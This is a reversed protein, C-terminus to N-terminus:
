AARRRWRGPAVGHRRKFAAALSYESAFGTAAAVAAVTDGTSRLLDEAREIRLGTVYAAPTEGVVAAFRRAFGARSLHAVGAMSEVTWPREPAAHVADLVAALAPDGLARYWGPAAWSGSAFADRLAQVLLLDLARDLVAQQGPAVRVAEAALVEFLLGLGASRAGGTIVLEDPLSALLDGGPSGEITYGGCLVVGDVDDGTSHSGRARALEIPESAAGRESVLSYPEGHRVLVVDGEGVPRSRTGRVLLGGGRLLVHVVLPRRGSFGLGWPADRGLVSFVSGRARARALVESLADVPM